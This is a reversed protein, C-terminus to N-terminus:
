AQYDSNRASSSPRSDKLEPSDCLEPSDLFVGASGASGSGGGTQRALLSKILESDKETIQEIQSGFVGASGAAGGGGNTCLVKLPEASGFQTISGSTM